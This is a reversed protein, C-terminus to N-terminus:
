RALAARRLRLYHMLPCPRIWPPLPAMDGGGLARFTHKTGGFRSFLYLFNVYFLFYIDFNLLKLIFHGLDTSLTSFPPLNPGKPWFKDRGWVPGSSEGKDSPRCSPCIVSM